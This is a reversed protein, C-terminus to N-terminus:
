FFFLLSGISYRTTKGTTNGGPLFLYTHGILPWQKLMPVEDYSKMASTLTSKRKIGVFFISKASQLIM